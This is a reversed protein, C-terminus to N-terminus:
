ILDRQFLASLGSQYSKVAKAIDKSLRLASFDAFKVLKM